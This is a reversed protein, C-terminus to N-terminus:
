SSDPDLQIPQGHPTSRAAADWRNQLEELEGADAVGKSRLMRELTNLWHSYYTNGYDPDGAQQAKAIEEGLMASWEPWAFLGREHLELAMAFVQAHWPEAFVPEGDQAPFQAPLKDLEALRAPTIGSNSAPNSVSHNASCTNSDTM